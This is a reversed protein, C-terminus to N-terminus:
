SSLGTGKRGRRIRFEERWGEMQKERQEVWDELYDYFYEPICGGAEGELGRKLLFVFDALMEDQIPLYQSGM